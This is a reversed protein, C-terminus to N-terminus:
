HNEQSNHPSVIPLLGRYRELTHRARDALKRSTLAAQKAGERTVLVTASAGFLLAGLVGVITLYTAYELIIYMTERNIKRWKNQHPIGRQPNLGV